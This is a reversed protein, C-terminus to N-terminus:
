PRTPAINSINNAYLQLQSLWIEKQRRFSECIFSILYVKEKELKLLLNERELDDLRQFM